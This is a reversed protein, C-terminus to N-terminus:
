IIATSVKYPTRVHFTVTDDIPKKYSVSKGETLQSVIDELQQLRHYLASYDVEMQPVCMKIMEVEFVSRNNNYRMKESLEALIKMYRQYIVGDLDPNNFYIDRYYEYLDSCIKTLSKGNQEEQSVIDLLRTIDKTEIANAMYTLTTNDIEGFVEKVLDLTIIGNAFTTCQDLLSLADRLGGHALKAIHLLAADTEWEINEQILVQQLAQVIGVESILKFTYRQCRSTITAPVKYNETTALIFVVHAPPEELTKLLANFANSSLMHVEDIIYVKYQGHQPTYKSEEILERIHDVGNNSAADIEVIDTNNMKCCECQLCPSGNVPSKCNIAKAFIKAISTKGTGRPGSFLYAHAIRHSTIQNRLTQVIASQGHVDDFVAPRYKRYLATYSM